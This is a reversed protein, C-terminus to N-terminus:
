SYHVIGSQNTYTTKFRPPMIALVKFHQVFGGQSEWQVMTPQIGDVLEVVDRTMQAMIINTGTLREAVRVSSINPLEEIRQLITKDSEAKYDNSMNAFVALPVYIIFPGYMQDNNALAIMALTDALIQAGTATTWTATVSGTNRQPATTYGYIPNSSGLITSGLFLMDELKESVKRSAYAAQTTDLADGLNRSAALARINLQFEKHVIPVPMSDNAYDIRDNQGQTVGAMSVEAGEMDSVKEWEISTKGMANPLNFTLGASVLDSIGNLRERAVETVANDFHIWEDRRLTTQPRLANINFNTALLRDAISGSAVGGQVLDISASQNNPM